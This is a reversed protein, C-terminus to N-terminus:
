PTIPGLALGSVEEFGMMINMNQVAQGAAGKMLNDIVSLIIVRNTGRERYPAIRCINSARVSKTDPCTSAPMIDVFPEKNYFSEYLDSVDFEEKADVYITAHIGRVMPLLHPVFTLKVRKESAGKGSPDNELIDLNM